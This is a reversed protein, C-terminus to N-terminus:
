LRTRQAPKTPANLLAADLGRESLIAEAWALRDQGLKAPAIDRYDRRLTAAQILDAASLRRSHTQPARSHIDRIIIAEHHEEDDDDASAATPSMGMLARYGDRADNSVAFLADSRVVYDARLDAQVVDRLHDVVARRSRFHDSSAATGAGGQRLVYRGGPGVPHDLQYGADTLYTQWRQWM